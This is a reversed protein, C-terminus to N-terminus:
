RPTKLGEAKSPKDQKYFHLLMKKYEAIPMMGVSKRREDLHAEDEVPYLTVTGSKIHQAQTGYRQKQKRAVLVRDTLLAYDAPVVEGSKVGPQMLALCHAQFAPDADAHQVLLLANGSGTLGVLSKGPWGYRAVIQKLRLLNAADIAIWAEANKASNGHEIQAIRVKQDSNVMQQLEAQLAHNVQTHTQHQNIVYAPPAPSTLM